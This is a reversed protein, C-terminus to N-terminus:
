YKSRVTFDIASRVKIRETNSGEVELYRSLLHATNADFTDAISGVANDKGIKEVKDITSIIQRAQNPDHIGAKSVLADLLRRNNVRVVADAELAQMTDSMMAVVETDALVSNTGVTDADFQVFERYRGAQPSEGRFVPGIQYRKYPLPIEHQHQAVVRALPVTLDYRLALLRQGHDTFKYMLQEGEEGYKGSLTEQREVIPTDLPTFGYSEYVGKITDLMHDRPIKQEALIDRFGSLPGAEKKM